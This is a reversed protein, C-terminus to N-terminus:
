RSRRRAVTVLLGVGALMLGLEGPEPVTSVTSTSWTVDAFPDGALNVFYTDAIWVGNTIDAGGTVGSGGVVTPLAGTSDFFTGQGAPGVTDVVFSTNPDVFHLDILNANDVYQFGTGDLVSSDLDLYGLVGSAGSTATFRLESASAGGCLGLALGAVALVNFFKM